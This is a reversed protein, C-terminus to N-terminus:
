DKLIKETEILRLGREDSHIMVIDNPKSIIKKINIETNKLKEKQSNRYLTSVFAGLPTLKNFGDVAKIFLDKECVEEYVYEYDEIIDEEEM